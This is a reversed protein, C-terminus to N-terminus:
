IEELAELSLEKSANKYYAQKLRDLQGDARLKKFMLNGPGFEGENALSEKRLTGLAKWFNGIITSDQTQIVKEIENVIEQMYPPLEATTQQVEPKHKWSDTVLSYVGGAVLPTTIDETGVEVPIGKITIDFEDNFVKKQAILYKKFIEAAAGVDEYNYVLHLDIDSTDAYNYNANSGTLYIDIPLLTVDLRDKFKKAIQLLAQRVDPKVKDGDFLKPNFQKSEEVFTGSLPISANTNMPPQKDQTLYAVEAGDNVYSENKRRINKLTQNRQMQKDLLDMYKATMDGGHIPNSMANRPDSYYDMTQQKETDKKLYDASRYLSPTLKSDPMSRETTIKDYIPQLDEEDTAYILAYIDDSLENNNIALENNIVNLKNRVTQLDKYDDQLKEWGQILSLRYDAKEIGDSISKVLATQLAKNEQDESFKQFATHIDSIIKKNTVDLSSKPKKKLQSQLENTVHGLRTATEYDGLASYVKGYHLVNAAKDKIESVTNFIDERQKIKNVTNDYEEKALSLLNPLHLREIDCIPKNNAFVVFKSYPALRPFAEGEHKIFAAEYLSRLFSIDVIDNQTFDQLNAKPSIELSNLIIPKALKSPTGDQNYPIIRVNNLTHHRVQEWDRLKTNTQKEDASQKINDAPITDHKWHVDDENVETLVSEEKQKGLSNPDGKIKERNLKPIDNLLKVYYDNLINNGKWKSFATSFMLYATLNNPANQEIWDWIKSEFTKRVVFGRASLKEYADRKDHFQGSVVKFENDEKDLVISTYKEFTSNAVYETLNIRKLNSFLSM